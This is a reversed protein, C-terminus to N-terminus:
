GIFSVVSVDADGNRLARHHASMQPELLSRVPEKISQIASSFVFMVRAELQKSPFLELISLALHGFRYGDDINGTRILMVGYLLFGVCGSDIM